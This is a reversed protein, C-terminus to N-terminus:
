TNHTRTLFNMCMHGIPTRTGESARVACAVRKIECRLVLPVVTLKFSYKHEFVETSWSRALGVGSRKVLRAYKWQVSCLVNVGHSHSGKSVGSYPATDLGLVLFSTDCPRLNFKSATMERQGEVGCNGDVFTAGRLDWSWQVNNWLVPKARPYTM